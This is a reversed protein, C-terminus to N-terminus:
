IGKFKSVLIHLDTDAVVEHEVSADLAILTGPRLRQSDEHEGGATFAGTGSLCLVTIPEPTHHRKLTAKARIGIEVVRRRDDNLLERMNVDKESEWIGEDRLEFVSNLENM